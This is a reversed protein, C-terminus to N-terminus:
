RHHDFSGHYGGRVGALVTVLFVDERRANGGIIVGIRSVSGLYPLM